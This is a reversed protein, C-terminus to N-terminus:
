HGTMHPTPDRTMMIDTQDGDAFLAHYGTNASSYRTNIMFQNEAHGMDPRPVLDGKHPYRPRGSVPQGGMTDWILPWRTGWYLGYRPEFNYNDIHQGTGGFNVYRRGNLLRLPRGDFQRYNTIAPDLAGFTEAAPDASYPMSGGRPGATRFSYTITWSGRAGNTPFGAVAAPCQWSGPEVYEGLATGVATRLEPDFPDDDISLEELYPVHDHHDQSYMLVGTFLARLNNRCVLQRAQRRAGSLSPLLMAMLIGIIALVVLLEVLTFAPRARGMARKRRTQQEYM